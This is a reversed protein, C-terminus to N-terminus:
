TTLIDPILFSRSGRVQGGYDPFEKVRQRVTGDPAIRYPYLMAHRPTPLPKPSTYAEWSEEAMERLLRNCQLSQPSHFQPHLQGFHECWLSLRFAHVAGNAVAVDPAQRSVEASAVALETDRSGNMSRENINASGVIIVEDDVIMMKSHVYIAARCNATCGHVGKASPATPAAGDVERNGLCFFVLYDQPHRDTIKKARLAAAIRAYMMCVTHWQWRLVEQVAGSSPVGEPFMPIVVYVCFPEDKSIKHVIKNVLELPILNDAKPAAHTDWMHSSGIFYQNEIYIFRKARRIHHIYGDQITREVFHSICACRYDISRLLQCRWGFAEEADQRGNSAEVPEFLKAPIHVLSNALSPVQKHWRQEFNTLLDRVVPGEVRCHIDHWPERPGVSSSVAPLCCNQYFDEKHATELTKFLNHAPTDWRGATLDLGGMYAVARRTGDPHAADCIVSKQHHTFYMANLTSGPHPMAGVVVGTNKFYSKTEEDFTGMLGSLAPRDSVSTIEDWIMVLVPVGESAKRVLLEGLTEVPSCEARLIRLNVWVSWGTIYIFQRAGQLHAHLDQWAHTPECRLSARSGLSMRHAHDADGHADQYLTVHCAPRMPFPTHPVELRAHAKEAPFFEMELFIDGYGTRTLPEGKVLQFWSSIPDHATAAIDEQPIRTYGLVDM